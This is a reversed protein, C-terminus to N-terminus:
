HLLYCERKPHPCCPNSDRLTSKPRRRQNLPPAHHLRCCPSRWLGQFPNLDEQERSGPRHPPKRRAGSDPTHHLPLVPAKLARPPPEIGEVRPKKRPQPHKTSLGKRLVAFESVGTRKRCCGKRKGKEKKRGRRGTTSFYVFYLVYFGHAGTTFNTSVASKPETSSLRSPEVGEPPM